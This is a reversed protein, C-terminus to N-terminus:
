NGDLFHINFTSGGEYVYEAYGGIQNSLRYILQMGMSTSNEFDFGEPLGQGSDHYILVFYSDREVLNLHISLISTASLAYKLSNTILENLILGLPIILDIKINIEPLDNILRVEQKRNGSMSKLQSYLTEAFSRFDISDLIEDQYLKQHIIAMSIVRSQSEALASKANSDDVSSAQMELLSSIIQLNNKVRHHVEKLLISKQQLAKDIAANQAQLKTAQLSITKNIENKHALDRYIFVILVICVALSFVGAALAIEQQKKIKEFSSKEIQYMETQKEFDIKMVHKADAITKEENKIIDSVSDYL